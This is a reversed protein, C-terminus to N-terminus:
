EQLEEDTDNMDSFDVLKDDHRQRIWRLIKDKSIQLSSLLKAQAPAVFGFSNKYESEIGFANIRVMDTNLITKVSDINNIILRPARKLISGADYMLQQANNKIMFSSKSNVFYDVGHALMENLRQM